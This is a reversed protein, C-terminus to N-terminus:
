PVVNWATAKCNHNILNKKVFHVLLREHFIVKIAYYIKINTM